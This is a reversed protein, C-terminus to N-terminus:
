HRDEVRKLAREVISLLDTENISGKSVLRRGFETLQKRQEPSLDGGSVVIVPIDRLKANERMKELIMFGDMEPMFLDLIIADPPRSTIIKWGEKGGEALTLNYRDSPQFIKQILRLSDPDDDVVLVDHIAGDGNLRNLSGVLDEELIPKLLYDAAGLSFGREQEEVISCVIVPIDRTQAERKLENLVQWGDFGPMMIDLTIAFPKIQRAREMARSPDTLGVVDYGQPGLYREYLALVQPDDDVALIVKKGNINPKEEKVRYVPLTFYFTSGKGVASHVGIRGGHLQVL